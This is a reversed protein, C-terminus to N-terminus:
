QAVPLEITFTTGKPSNEQGTSSIVKITGGLRRIMEYSVFLGLGTGEGHKKTSFFPDFVKKISQESIGPGTDSIDIRVKKLVDSYRTKIKLIGGQPMVDCANAFINTIVEQIISPEGKVLPIDQQIEKVIEIKKSSCHPYAIAILKDIIDNVGATNESGHSHRSFELLNRVINSGHKIQEEVTALKQLCKSDKEGNMEESVMQTYLLANALPTNLEHALGATLLGLAALKEKQIVQFELEKERAYSKEIFKVIRGSVLLAVTIILCTLVIGVYIMKRNLLNIQSLAEEKDQEAIVIWSGDMIESYAHLVIEGRYDVLEYIGHNSSPDIKEQIPVSDELIQAGLRSSTIFRGEKNVLYVEGTMGIETKSLSIDIKSFDVCAALTRRVGGDPSIVPLSILIAPVRKENGHALFVDSIYENGLRANVFWDLDSVAMESTFCESDSYLVDGKENTVIFGLYVNYKKKMLRFHEALHDKEMDPDLSFLSSLMRIDSQRESVFEMIIYSSKNSVSLLHSFVKEKIMESGETKVKYGIFALPIISLFAFALVLVFRLRGLNM